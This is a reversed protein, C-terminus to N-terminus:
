GKISTRGGKPGGNINIKVSKRIDHEWVNIIKWGLKRYYNYVEKDREKNRKFKKTWFIKNTKPIKSHKPCGHFWCGQIRVIVKKAKNAYDPNGFLNKPQHRLRCGAKFIALKKGLIEISSVSRIKSMLISRQKKSLTDM